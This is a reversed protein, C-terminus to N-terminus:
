SRRRRYESLVIPRGAKVRKKKKKKPRMDAHKFLGETIKDYDGIVDIPDSGMREITAVGPTLGTWIASIENEDIAVGGKGSALEFLIMAM